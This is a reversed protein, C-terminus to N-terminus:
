RSTVSETSRKRPRFCDIWGKRFFTPISEPVIYHSKTRASTLPKTRTSTTRRGVEGVDKKQLTGRKRPRSPRDASYLKPKTPCATRSDPRGSHQLRPTNSYQARGGYGKGTEEQARSRSQEGHASCQFFRVPM